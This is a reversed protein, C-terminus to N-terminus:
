GVSKELREYEVADPFLYVVPYGAADPLDHYQQEDRRNKRPKGNEYELNEISATLRPCEDVDVFWRVQNHVNGMLACMADVRDEVAPSKNYHYVEFVQEGGLQVIQGNHVRLDEFHFKSRKGGKSKAGSADDFIAAPYFGRAVLETALDEVDYDRDRYAEAVAWMCVLGGIKVVKYVVAFNRGMGYDVGVVFRPDFSTEL